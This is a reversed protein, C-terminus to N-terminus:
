AAASEPALRARPAAPARDADQESTYVILGSDERKAAYLAIDARRLLAEADTGHEPFLAIGVSAGIELTREEIHFPAALGHLLKAAVTQAANVDSGPLLIAFEDGGMRAVTDGARLTSQMRRAVQRLLEDGAHHGLTDNVEKFRDLDMVLVAMPQGVEEAIRAADRLREHLLTRNPLSTLGDHHAQHQLAQEAQRRDSIDRLYATFLPPGDFDIQVVALELPMETGDARRGAGLLHQGLRDSGTALIEAVSHAPGVSSVMEALPRGIAEDRTYGFTREAAPNFETVAGSADVLVIADLASALIAARRAESRSRENNARGLRTLILVTCSFLIAVLGVLISRYLTASELAQDYELSYAAELAEAGALTPVAVMQTLLGDLAAKSHLVIGIHGALMRLQYAAPTGDGLNSSALGALQASVSRATEADGTLNYLLVDRVIDNVGEPAREGRRAVDGSALGAYIIPLYHLTNRLIANESKFREVLAAEDSVAVAHSALLMGLEMRSKASVFGPPTGLEAQTSELEALTAVLTDYSSTLEFRSQLVDANLRADLEKLHVLGAQYRSHEQFDLSQTKLVVFALLGVVGLGVAVAMLSARTM